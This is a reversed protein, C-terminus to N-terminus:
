RRQTRLHHRNTIIIDLPVDHIDSEIMDDLLQFDYGMGIKIATTNALLRDYYGKGRGVRNGYRDFAVAPVIILDITALDILDNGQPEEINFSGTHLKTKEYPLIDLNDGNVRPLFLQKKEHWKDIFDLTSLEDPLSHYVLVRDAMIFTASEELRAFACRAAETKFDDSLQSKLLRIQKRIQSKDM